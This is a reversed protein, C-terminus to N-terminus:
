NTKKEKEQGKSTIQNHQMVTVNRQNYAYFSVWARAVKTPIVQGRGRGGGVWCGYITVMWM